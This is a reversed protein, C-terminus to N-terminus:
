SVVDSKLLWLIQTAYQYAQDPADVTGIFGTVQAIEPVAFFKPENLKNNIFHTDHIRYVHTKFYFGAEMGDITEYPFM